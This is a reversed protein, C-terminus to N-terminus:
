NVTSFRQFARSQSCREDEGLTFFHEIEMASLAAPFREQGFMSTEM